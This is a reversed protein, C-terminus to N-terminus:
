SQSNRSVSYKNMIMDVVDVGGKTSNYFTINEPKKNEGTAEDINKDQHM